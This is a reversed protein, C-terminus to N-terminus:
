WGFGRAHRLLVAITAVVTIFVYFCFYMVIDFWFGRPDDALTSTLFKNHTVRSRLGIFLVALLLLVPLQFIAAEGIPMGKAVLFSSVAFNVPLLLWVVM